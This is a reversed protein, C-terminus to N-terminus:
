DALAKRYRTLQGSHESSLVKNEIACLTREPENLILIDLYGEQGDVQNAWEQIVIARTWDSVQMKPPAGIKQLLNTLFHERIGHSARPDLLWALLNSHFEEDNSLRLFAIADFEARQEEILEHLRKLDPDADFKRMSQLTAANEDALLQELRELERVLRDLAAIQRDTEMDNTQM